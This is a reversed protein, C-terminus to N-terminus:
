KSKMKLLRDVVVQPYRLVIDGEKLGDVVETFSGDSLGVTLKRMQLEKDVQVYCYNEKNRTLITGVPLRLCNPREAISISLEASMGPRLADNNADITIAVRYVKVDRTFFESQDAMNAVETVKGTFVRTPFADVRVTTKQGARVKHIVTEPVKTVAVMQQLDCIRLLKQGMRVPEGPAVIAGSGPPAGRRQEPV